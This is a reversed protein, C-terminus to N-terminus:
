DEIHKALYQLIVDDTINGSTTSFYGRAWFRRGWYRKHIEPFERQIQRSSRGKMRQVIYSISYKPPAAIFIHVHDNSLVGKVIQVGLENCVQKIIDRIRLRLEGRLVKFRYKTAWVIHYRHYHVTHCGKSYVM